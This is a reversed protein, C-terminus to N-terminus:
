PKPRARLDLKIPGDGTVGGGPAGPGGPKAAPPDMGLLKRAEDVSKEAEEFQRAYLAKRAQAFLDEVQATDKGDLEWQRLVKGAELMKARVRQEPDAPLPAPPAPAEQTSPPELVARVIERVIAARQAEYASPSLARLDELLPTLRALLIAFMERRQEPTLRQRMGNPPMMGAAPRGKGGPPQLRRTLEQRRTAMTKLEGMARDIMPSLAQPEVPEEPKDKLILDRMALLQDTVIKLNAEETTMVGLLARAFPALPNARSEGAPLRRRGFDTRGGFRAGRRPAARVAALAQDVYKGAEDLKGAQAAQEAKQMLPLAARVDRGQSAARQMERKLREAKKGLPGREGGGVQRRLMGMMEAMGQEVEPQQGLRAAELVRDRVKRLADVNQGQEKLKRAEACMLLFRRFLDEHDRFFRAADAPLDNYASDPIPEAGGAPAGGPQKNAIATRLSSLRATAQDPQGAALYGQIDTMEKVLEPPAGAAILGLAEQAAQLVLARQRYERIGWLTAGILGLALVVILVGALWGGSSRRAAPEQLPPVYDPDMWLAADDTEDPPVLAEIPSDPAAAEPAADLPATEDAAPEEEWDIRDRSDLPESGDREPRLDDGSPTQDV